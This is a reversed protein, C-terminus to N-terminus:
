AEGALRRIRPALLWLVAGATCPVMAIVLFFGPPLDASNSAAMGALFNGFGICAMYVGMVLGSWRAPALRSVVSLGVPSLCLEGLTFIVYTGILWWPSVLQGTAAIGAAPVLLLVGLGVLILGWAFKVPASPQRDGLTLWLRNFLPALVVVAASNVCLFWSSPFIWGGITCDTREKAFVSLTTGAQEFIAFFIVAFALLIALALLRRGHRAAAAPTPLGADVRAGEAVLVLRKRQLVFQALGVLMAVGALLFACRWGNADVWGLSGLWATFRPDQAIFGCALPALLAGINIGMYYISFGGDQRPDDRRYLRSVLMACNPKLLGTGIMLLMLGAYFAPIGGMALGFQGAAIGLGGTLVSWWNGLWRDAVWGAPISLAYVGLTFVGYVGGSWELTFGMGGQAVPLTMYIMLLARMGYYSFREWMETGFLVTLGQPHDAFGIVRSIAHRAPAMM